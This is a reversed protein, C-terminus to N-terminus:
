NIGKLAEDVYTKLSFIRDTDDVTIATGTAVGNETIYIEPDGYEEKLWNLLRRLGWSVAKQENVATNESGDANDKEVDQDTEYSEINIRSIVHHM